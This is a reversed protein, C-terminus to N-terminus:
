TMGYLEKINHPTVVEVDTVGKKTILVTVKDSVLQLMDRDGSVVYSEGDFHSSITGIIDDAEVGAKEVVTVQMTALLDHLIPMQSALDEPMGKRNAKYDPYIQKRFNAGRKDFAVVLKDPKLQEVVKLLINVFGYVANINNGQSDSLMPMAFYARNIISNGDILLLKQSM